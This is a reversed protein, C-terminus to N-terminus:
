REFTVTLFISFLLSMERRNLFQELAFCQPVVLVNHTVTGDFPVLFEGRIVGNALCHLDHPTIKRNRKVPSLALLSFSSECSETERVLLLRKEMMVVCARRASMQMLSLPPLRIKDNRENCENVAATSSFPSSHSFPPPAFGNIIAQRKGAPSKM